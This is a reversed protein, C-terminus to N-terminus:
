KSGATVPLERNIILVPCPANDLVKSVVKGIRSLPSGGDGVASMVILDSKQESTLSIVETAIDGQRLIAHTRVFKPTREEIVELLKNIIKARQKAADYTTIKGSLVMENMDPEVHMVCIESIGDWALEVAKQLATFSAESFDTPCIIRKFVPMIQTEESRTPKLSGSSIKQHRLNKPM